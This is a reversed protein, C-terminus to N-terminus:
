DSKKLLPGVNEGGSPFPRPPWSPRILLGKLFIQSIEFTRVLSLQRFQMCNESEKKALASYLQCM